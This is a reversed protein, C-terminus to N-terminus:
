KGMFTGLSSSFFWIKKQTQKSISGIKYGVVKEGRKIRINTVISQIKYADVISININNKFLVSPNKLDYDNLIEQAYRELENENLEAM